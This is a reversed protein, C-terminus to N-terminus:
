KFAWLKNLIFNLPITICLNILPAILDSINLCDVWFFLLATGLLFTSGYSMFVKLASKLLSRDEDQKRAFVYKNNWYFANMVSIAFAIINAILYHMGFYICIYYIALSIVTNSVGVLGFKIFQKVVCLLEEKSNM